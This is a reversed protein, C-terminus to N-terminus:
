RRAQLQQTGEGAHKCSEARLLWGQAIKQADIPEELLKRMHQPRESGMKLTEAAGEKIHNDIVKSLDIGKQEPM